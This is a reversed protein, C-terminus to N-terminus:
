REYDADERGSNIEANKALFNPKSVSAKKLLEKLRETDCFVFRNEDSVRDMYRGFERDKGYISTVFNSSTYRDEVWGHGDKQVSVIVPAGDKDLLDTLIVFSDASRTSSRFCAIPNKIAEPVKLFIRFAIRHNNGQAFEKDTVTELLHKKTYLMPLDAYGINKLYQPTRGVIIDDTHDIDGPERVRGSRIVHRVQEEFSLKSWNKM